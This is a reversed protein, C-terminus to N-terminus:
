SEPAAAATRRGFALVSLLLVLLVSPYVYRYAPFPIVLVLLSVCTLSLLAVLLVGPDRRRALYTGVIFYGLLLPLAPKWFLWMWDQSESWYQYRQLIPRLWPLLSRSPGVMQEFRPDVSDYGLTATTEFFPQRFGVHWLMRTVCVQRDLLLTPHQLILRGVAKVMAVQNRRLYLHYERPKLLVGESVSAMTTDTMQCDYRAWSERPAIGYFLAADAAPVDVGQAVAGSFLHYMYLNTFTGLPLEANNPLVNEVRALASLVPPVTFGVALFALAVVALRLDRLRRYLLVVALLFVLLVAPMINSRMLGALLGSALMAALLWRPLRQQWDRLRFAVLVSWSFFLTGVLSLADKGLNTFLTPFGPTLALVAVLVLIAARPAGRFRLERLLLAVAVPALVMQILILPLPSSSFLTFLRMLYTTPYGLPAFLEGRGAAQVWQLSGDYSVNGPMFCALVIASALLLPVACAALEWRPPAAAALRAGWPGATGVRRVVWLLVTFVLVAAALWTWLSYRLTIGTAKLSPTAGGFQLSQVVEKPNRLAIQMREGVADDVVAVGGAPYRVLSVFVPDRDATIVVPSAAAQAYLLTADASRQVEWGAPPVALRGSRRYEAFRNGYFALAVTGQSGTAPAIEARYTPTTDDTVGLSLMLLLTALLAVLWPRPPQFRGGRRRWRVVLRALLAAGALLLVGAGALWPWWRELPDVPTPQVASAPGGIELPLISEAPSRLDLERRNGAGDEVVAQGGNAHRILSVLLPQLGARLRVPEAPPAAGGEAVVTTLDAKRSVVWGTAPLKLQGSAVYQAYRDGYFVLMVSGGQAKGPGIRAEYVPPRKDELAASLWARARASLSDDFPRVASAPGGITLTQVREVPARLALERRDATGDGIWAVGAGPHQLLNVHMPSKGTAAIRVPEAGPDAVVTIADARRIVKWGAPPLTIRGSKVYDDFRGDYFVLAVSGPKGQAPAIDARYVAMAEGRGGAFHAVLFTAAAAAVLAAFWPRRKRAPRARNVYFDPPGSPRAARRAGLRRALALLLSAALVLLAALGALRAPWPLYPVIGTVPEVPSTPGGVVTPYISETTSRLSVEHREGAGDEIVVSGGGPQTLLSVYVPQQRTAIRLPPAAADAAVTASDNRRTVTWGSSPIEVLGDRLYRDLRGSYFVLVVKGHQGPAPAIAARYLPASQSEHRALLLLLLLVVAAAVGLWVRPSGPRRLSVKGEM